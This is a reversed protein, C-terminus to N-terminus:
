KDIKTSHVTELTYGAQTKELRVWVTSLDQLSVASANAYCFFQM